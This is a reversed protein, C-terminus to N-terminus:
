NNIGNDEGLYSLSCITLKKPEFKQPSDMGCILSKVMEYDSMNLVPKTLRLIGDINVIASQHIQQIAHYHYIKM